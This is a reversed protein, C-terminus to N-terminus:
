QASTQLKALVLENASPLGRRRARVRQAFGANVGHDHLRILEALTLNMYGARRFEEAYVADVGHDRARIADDVSVGNYGAAALRALFQPDVGHDKFRILDAAAISGYGARRMDAVYEPTIGDAHLAILEGATRLRIRSASLGRLYETSMGRLGMRVLERMAPSPYGGVTLEQLFAYGVNGITLRFADADSPRGIGRRALLGAFSHDGRFVYGGRVEGRAAVGDFIVTGADRVLMFRLPAPGGGALQEISLGRIEALSDDDLVITSRETGSDGSAFSIQLRGPGDQVRAVFSGRPGAQAAATAPLLTALAISRIISARLPSM